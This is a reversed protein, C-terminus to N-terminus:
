LSRMALFVFNGAEVMHVPNKCNRPSPAMEPERKPIEALDKQKYVNKGSM